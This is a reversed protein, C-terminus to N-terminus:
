WKLHQNVLRFLPFMKLLWIEHDFLPLVSPYHSLYGGFRALFLGALFLPYPFIVIFPPSTCCSFPNLFTQHTLKSFFTSSLNNVGCPKIENSVQVVDVNDHIKPFDRRFGLFADFGMTWTWPVDDWKKAWSGLEHTEDPSNQSDQNPPGLLINLLPRTTWLQYLFVHQKIHRGWNGSSQHTPTCYSVNSYAEWIM